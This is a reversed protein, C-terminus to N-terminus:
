GEYNAKQKCERGEETRIRRIAESSTSAIALSLYQDQERFMLREALLPELIETVLYDEKAQGQFRAAIERRSRIETCYLYVERWLAELTITRCEKRADILELFDGGDFYFLAKAIGPVPPKERITRYLDRWTRCADQIPRWDAQKGEEEFDLWPLKLRRAVEPPLSQQFAVAMCINSVGFRGPQLFVTSDPDLTFHSFNLPTFSIAYNLLNFRTEEVEAQTTGPFGLILNNGCPINLEDCARMGCLNQITTTGKNLRKLYATSLGEVGIQVNVSCAEQFDVLLSAKIDARLELNLSYSKGSIRIARALERRDTLRLLSDTFFLRTNRYKASLLNAQEMIRSISKDRRVAHGNIGCFYCARFPNGTKARRDWWCGRSSEMPLFPLVGKGRVKEQYDDYDPLPLEDLNAVEWAAGKLWAGSQGPRQYNQRTLIGTTPDINEEKGELLCRLLHLLRLEGEGCVVFDIFPYEALLSGGAVSAAVGGFVIRLSPNQEKLARGLCLSSFLQSFSTTLGVLDVGESLFRAAESLHRGTVNLLRNLDQKAFRHPKLFERGVEDTRNLWALIHREANVASEPYFHHLYVLEAPISLPTLTAYLDEIKKWVSVHEHHCQISVRPERDRIFAALSGIAFSPRNYNHWPMSVLKVKM